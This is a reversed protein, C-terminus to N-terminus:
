AASLGSLGSGVLRTLLDALREVFSEDTKINFPPRAFSDYNRVFAFGQHLLWITAVAAEEPTASAPLFRRVIAGALSLMPAGETAILTQFVETRQLMEWNLIRMHTSLEDRKVLPLLLQRVFLRLAVDRDMGPDLGAGAGRDPGGASDPLRFLDFQEFARLTTRLVERYLGEKGGFHYNIAAQNAKARETIQRVSGGEFGKEAFVAAAAEILAGRTLDAPRTM